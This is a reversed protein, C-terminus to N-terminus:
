AASWLRPYAADLQAQLDPHLLVGRLVEHNFRRLRADLAAIPQATAAAATSFKAAGLGLVARPSRVQVPRALRGAHAPRPAAARHLHGADPQAM